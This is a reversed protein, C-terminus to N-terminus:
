TLDRRNVSKYADRKCRTVVGRQGILTGSGSRGSAGGIELGNAGFATQEWEIQQPANEVGLRLEVARRELHLAYRCGLPQTLDIAVLNERGNCRQRAKGIAVVSQASRHCNKKDNM